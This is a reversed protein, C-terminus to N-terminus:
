VFTKAACKLNSMEGWIGGLNGECKEMNKTERKRRELMKELGLELARQVTGMTFPMQIRAEEDKWADWNPGAM